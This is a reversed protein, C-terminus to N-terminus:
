FDAATCGNGRMALDTQSIASIDSFTGDGNNHFLVNRPLGDQAEWLPIEHLAHSNVVYLDLWADNDVDLWCLGGGMM